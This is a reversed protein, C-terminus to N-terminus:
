VQTTFQSFLSCVHMTIVCHNFLMHSATTEYCTHTVVLQLLEISHGITHLSPSDQSGRAGRFRGRSRSLVVEM